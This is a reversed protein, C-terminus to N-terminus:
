VHRGKRLLELADSFTHWLNRYEYMRAHLKKDYAARFTLQKWTVRADELLAELQHWEGADYQVLHAEKSEDVAEHMKTSQMFNLEQRTIDVPPMDMTFREKKSRKTFGRM